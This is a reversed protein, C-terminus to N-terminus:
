GAFPAAIKERLGGEKIETLQAGQEGVELHYEAGIKLARNEKQHGVPFGFAVPYDFEKVKDLILEYETQGFPEDTDKSQSFSGLLLGGLHTLLGARKLTCMMRDIAYIYEGVDELFLIKGRVDPLSNSGMLAVLLSLNGGVLKGKAEGLRNLAHGPFAYESPEGMLAKKLSMSSLDEEKKSCLESCMVSHVTQIGYQTFIHSHLATIDSYGCIWKPNKKFASFDLRDLIRLVGYGGRGFVIAKIEEDDLMGQLEAM